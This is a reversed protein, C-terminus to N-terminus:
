SKGFFSEASRIVDELEALTVIGVCVGHIFPRTLNYEVAEKVRDRLRGEGLTKMVLVGKGNKFARELCRSYWQLSADMHIEYKNFNTFVLDLGPHDVAKELVHINHTSIGIAKIKGEEKAKELGKLADNMRKEFGEISDVSHLHFIDVYSTVLEELSRDLVRVAEIASAGYTKTAIVVNERPIGQMGLRIHRHTHYDDSTDWFNMGAEYARKLIPAYMEAPIKAQACGSKFDWSGTGVFVRPIELRTRGLAIRQM